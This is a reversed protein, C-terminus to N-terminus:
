LQEVKYGKTRLLDVVSEKGALHGAGVIVIANEKGRTLEEIKPVWAKNRDTVMRKFLGPVERMSENLLSELKESDGKEWAKTLDGFIDRSRKLDKLTTKLLDEAEAKEFNTVLDVQFEVTELAVFQM